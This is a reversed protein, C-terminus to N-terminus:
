AILKNKIKNKFIKSPKFVPACHSPVVISTGGSERFNKRAIKEKKKVINFTGFGRLYINNGLSMQKKIELMFGELIQKVIKRELGTKSSISNVIDQKRIGKSM